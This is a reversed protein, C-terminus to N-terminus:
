AIAQIDGLRDLTPDALWKEPYKGVPHLHLQGLEMRSWCEQFNIQVMLRTSGPTPNRGVVIM